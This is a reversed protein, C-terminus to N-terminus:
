TDNENTGCRMVESWRVWAIVAIYEAGDAGIQVAYNPAKEVLDGATMLGLMDMGPARYIEVPADRRVKIANARNM